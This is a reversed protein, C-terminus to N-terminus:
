TQLTPAGQRSTHWLALIEIVEPEPLVRYFLYYRIRTLHIRRLRQDRRPAACESAAVSNLSFIPSLRRAVM